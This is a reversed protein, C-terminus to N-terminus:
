TTRRAARRAGAFVLLLAVADILHYIANHDLWPTDFATGGQQVASAVLAIVLGVAGLVATRDGTRLRRAAFAIALFLAAPVYDWIAVRFAPVGAVAFAAYAAFAAAAARVLWRAADVRFLLHAGAAWAALATVGIAVLTARWLAHPLPGAFGPFFGHVTGGALAAAGTAAFFATFWRGVATTRDLRWALAGCEVVLGYDSLAVDPEAIM